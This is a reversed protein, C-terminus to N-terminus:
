DNFGNSQLSLQRLLSKFYMGCFNLEFLEASNRVKIDWKVDGDHVAGPGSTWIFLLVQHSRELCVNLLYTDVMFDSAGARLIVVPQFQCGHVANHGLADKIKSKKEM